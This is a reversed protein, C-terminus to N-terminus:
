YRVKRGPKYNSLHQHRIVNIGQQKAWEIADHGIKDCDSINLEELKQGQKLVLSKIGAGTIYQCRSFDARTLRPCQQAIHLLTDDLILQGCLALVEVNQLCGSSIFEIILASDFDNGLPSPSISRCELEKLAGHNHELLHTLATLSEASIYAARFTRLQTFRDLGETMSPSLKVNTLSLDVLNSPLNLLTNNTLTWSITEISLSRLQDSHSILPTSLLSCRGVLSFLSFSELGTAMPILDPQYVTLFVASAYHPVSVINMYHHIDCREDADMDIRFVIRRLRSLDGVWKPQVVNPQICEFEANVLKGCKALITAIDVPAITKQRGMKLTTLNSMVMVTAILSRNSEGSMIDLVDLNPCRAAVFKWMDSDGFDTRYITVQTTRKNGRIIYEKLSKLPVRRRAQSLDVHKWLRPISVILSKWQRSVLLLRQLSRFNLYGLIMEILEFPLAQLPDISKPDALQKLMKERMARLLEAGNSDKDMNKYGYKYIELATDDKGMLRLVQGTRLYGTAEKKDLHIMRKGDKLAKPLDELKSYTAARNDLISLPPDHLESILTDFVALAARYNHQRYLSQGHRQRSQWEEMAYLVPAATSLVLLTDIGVYRSQLPVVTTCPSNDYGLHHIV